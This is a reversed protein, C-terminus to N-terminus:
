ELSAPSIQEWPSDDFEAGGAHPTFDYTKVPKGTPQGDAGPGTFGVEVIRTDSYRWQVQALSAGENTMLDVSAAPRTDPAANRLEAGHLVVGLVAALGFVVLLDINTSIMKLM